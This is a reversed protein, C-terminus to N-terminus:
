KKLALDKVRDPFPDIAPFVPSPLVQYWYATACVDQPAEFNEWRGTGGDKRDDPEFKRHTTVLEPYNAALLKRIQPTMGGSMQQLSVRIAKEFYVPDPVHYRYFGWVGDEKESLICGQYLHDFKGLGWGSGVLDETGTGVLTPFSSDDDLYIKLEGEGFWFPEKYDGVARVGVNCGLYRGKGTIRPLVDFDKRPVTPNERRYRAHFYALQEPLRDGVTCDIDYFFADAQRPSQNEVVVRARKKFPMPIFCNFSRGEPNSFFCSEFRAQRGFPIGFFDQLPAEVSAQEQGDWYIKVVLGRLLEPVGAVTCWIRRITGPGEVDALVASEGAKIPRSPSGKRGENTKGGQGAEGTPNEFSIWRTQVGPPLDYLNQCFCPVSAIVAICFSLCFRRMSDELVAGAARNWAATASIGPKCYVYAISLAQCAHGQGAGVAPRIPGARPTPITIPKSHSHVEIRLHTPEDHNRVGIGIAVESGAGIDPTRGARGRLRAGGVACPFPQTQWPRV